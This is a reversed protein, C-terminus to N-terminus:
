CWNVGIDRVMKSDIGVTVWKRGPVSGLLVSGM